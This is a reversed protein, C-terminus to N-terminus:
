EHAVEPLDSEGLSDLVFQEGTWRPKYIRVKVAAADDPLPVSFTVDSRYITESSTLRGSADASEARLVRPDLVLARSIEQGQANLGVVVLHQTSLESNRQRPFKGPTRKQSLVTVSNEGPPPIAPYEPGAHPPTSSLNLEIVRTVGSDGAEITGSAIVVVSFVIAKVFALHAPLGEVLSVLGFFRPWRLDNM